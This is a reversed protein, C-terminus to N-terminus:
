SLLVDYLDLGYYEYDDDYKTIVISKKRKIHGKKDLKEDKFEIMIRKEFENIGLEKIMSKPINVRYTIDGKKNESFHVNRIKYKKDDKM